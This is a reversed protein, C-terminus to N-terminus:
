YVYRKVLPRQIRHNIPTRPARRILNQLITRPIHFLHTQEPSILANISVISLNLSHQFIIPHKKIDRIPLRMKDLRYQIPVHLPIHLHFDHSTSITKLIKPEYELLM